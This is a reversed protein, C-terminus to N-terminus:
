KKNYVIRYLVGAKDDTVLLSGDSRALIDVPRGWAGASTLWGTAFDSVNEVEGNPGLHYRVIKYGSPKSRNWSGHFAILLDGRYEEPWGTGELFALGLPASHAPMDAYSPIEWPEACPNRVYNNKDFDTDHINRGYCIPWGYSKGEQIINLEDPPLDDGLWDRGMETAWLDGVGPRWAFFPANRLGTAFERLRGTDIDVTQITAQRADRERCANCSSGISVYLRGDPGFGISRRNHGGSPLDAVKELIGESYIPMRTIRSEEAVYLLTPHAPDFAIGHPQVLDRLVVRQNVVAGDRLELLSVKGEESQTVWLNGFSDEKVVRIGPLDKAFVNAVFGEPLSLPLPNGGSFLPTNRSPLVAPRIAPIVGFYLVAALALFSALILKKFHIM